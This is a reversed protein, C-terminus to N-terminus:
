AARSLACAIAAHGTPGGAAVIAPHEAADLCGRRVRRPGEKVEGASGARARAPRAVHAMLLFVKRAAGVGRHETSAWLIMPSDIPRLLRAGILIAL